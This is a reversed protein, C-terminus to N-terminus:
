LSSSQVENSPLINGAIRRMSCSKALQFGCTLHSYAYKSSPVIAPIPTRHCTAPYAADRCFCNFEKRTWDYGCIGGSIVCDECLSTNAIWTIEFGKNLIDSITDGIDIGASPPPLGIPESKSIPVHVISSCRRPM